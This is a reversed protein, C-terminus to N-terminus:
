ISNCLRADNRQPIKIPMHPFQQPNQLHAIPFSILFIFFSSSQQLETIFFLQAHCVCPKIFFLFCIKASWYKQEEEIQSVLESDVCEGSKKHMLLEILHQQHSNSEEHRQLLNNTNKWDNFGKVLKNQSKSASCAQLHIHFLFQNQLQPCFVSLIYPIYFHIRPYKFCLSTTKSRSLLTRIFITLFFHIMLFLIHLHIFVLCSYPKFSFFLLSSTLVSTGLKHFSELITNYFCIVFHTSFLFRPSISFVNSPPIILHFFSYFSPLM